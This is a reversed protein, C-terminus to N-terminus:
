RDLIGLYAPPTATYIKAEVSMGPSIWRLAEGPDIFTIKVPVRQVVKVFNGTANEPPLLAFQAGTGRQISDVRGELRLGPFADVRVTARQGPRVNTLETEKYNATIYLEDPVISFLVQGPQVYNGVEVTKNAVTGADSARISTYSLNLQAQAFAARQRETAAKAQVLQTELVAEHARAADLAALDHQLTARHQGVDSEAQQLRQVTGSGSTALSQYRDLQQQAFDLTARDGDVASQSEAVIAHQERIQAEINAANAQASKLDANAMEVAVVFDRPDLELLLDDQAAKSNDNVHLKSVYAAVKSMVSVVHANVYADDTSVQWLEPVYFCFGIVAAILLTAGVVLARRPSHLDHAVAQKQEAPKGAWPVPPSSAERLTTQDTM